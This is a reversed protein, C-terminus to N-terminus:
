RTTRDHAVKNVLRQAVFGLDKCENDMCDTYYGSGDQFQVAIGYPAPANLRKLWMLNGQLSISGTAISKRHDNLISNAKASLEGAQPGIFTIEKVPLSDYETPYTNRKEIDIVKVIIDFSFYLIFAIAVCLLGFVSIAKWDPDITSPVDIKSKRNM